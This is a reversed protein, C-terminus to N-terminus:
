TCICLCAHLVGGPGPGAAPFPPPPGKSRPAATRLAELHAPPSPPGIWPRREQHCRNARTQEWPLIIVM